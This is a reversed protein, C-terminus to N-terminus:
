RGGRARALNARAEAFDPQIRLAETFHPIAEAVRGMTALVVGLNNHVEASDPSYKIAEKYEALAEPLKGSDHLVEALHVHAAGYTPQLRVAEQFEALADDRRNQRQRVRGLNDHPMGAGPLLRIATELAAAAEDFRNLSFLATGLNNHAEGFRPKLRVAERYEAIAEEPRGQRRLTTGLGDHADAYDPDIRLAERFHAIAEDFRGLDQLALGINQHAGASLPKIRLAENYRAMAEDIRGLAALDVGLNSIADAYAPKLRIAEAHERAAEEHRGQRQLIVGLNNHAAENAPNLQLSAQVNALAEHYDVPSKALAIAALNNYAMWCSPNAALTLRYLTEADVYQRSQQWTLTALPLAVVACAVGEVINPRLKARAAASVVAAAFLTIIGISALYQFHDAVFSYRFPFVNVFGLAPGLTAAFFLWAALPARTRSRLRWLVLTVAVAAIPFLYQWWVTQSVTWRPYVFILPSPWVLKGLYFFLARGAVLFRDILSLQFDAGNAGIFTREVWATMLGSALGLAFFPVLPQVDRRWDIRGRKWWIVTLLGAPLTATVTKSLLALAFLGIAIAYARRRRSEDFHLYALAATMYLVGSLTNKLETMWAVSEVQVPHLAFIVAALWAGPIALRRLIIALVWASLAHLGINVLHYGLTDAGWIRDMVWFASHVLPYYQQTAGVEFWIRGLGGSARLGASTLHGDDDWLIGGHWAPYYAAATVILLVPLLWLLSSIRRSPDTVRVDVPGPEPSRAAAQTRPRNKKRGAM